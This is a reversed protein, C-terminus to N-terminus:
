DQQPQQQTQQQQNQQQTLEMRARVTVPSANRSASAVLHEMYQLQLFREAIHPALQTFPINPISLDLWTDSVLEQM